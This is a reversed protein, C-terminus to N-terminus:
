HSLDAIAKLINAQTIETSGELKKSKKNIKNAVVVTPTGEVDYHRVLHDFYKSGM